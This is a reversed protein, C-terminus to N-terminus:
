QSTKRLNTSDFFLGEVKDGDIKFTVTVVVSELEYTCILRYVAIGQKNTLSPEKGACSVYQGSTTHLLDRLSAFQAEPLAIKMADDFDQTFDPYDGADIATLIKDVLQEVKENSLSAPKAPQCGALFFTALVTVLLISSTITRKM